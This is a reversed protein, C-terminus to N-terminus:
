QSSSAYSAFVAAFQDLSRRAITGDGHALWATTVGSLAALILEALDDAPITFEVGLQTQFQQLHHAIKDRYAGHEWQPLGRLEEDRLAYNTLESLM